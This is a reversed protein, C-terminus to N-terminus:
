YAWFGYVKEVKNLQKPTWFHEQGHGFANM